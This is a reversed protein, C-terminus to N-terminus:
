RMSRATSPAAPNTRAGFEPGDLPESPVQGRKEDIRIMSLFRM